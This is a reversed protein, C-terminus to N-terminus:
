QIFKAEEDPTMPRRWVETGNDLRKCFMEKTDRDPVIEGEVSIKQKRQRVAIAKERIQVDLKALADKLEKRTAKQQEIVRTYHGQADDFEGRVDALEGALKLVEQDSLPVMLELQEYEPDLGM